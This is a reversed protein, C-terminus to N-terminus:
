MPNHAHIILLISSYKKKKKIIFHKLMKIDEGEWWIFLTYWLIFHDLHIYFDTEMTLRYATKKLKLNKSPHSKM